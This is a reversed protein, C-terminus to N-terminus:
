AYRDLAIHPQYSQYNSNDPYGMMSYDGQQCDYEMCAARAYQEQTQLMQMLESSSVLQAAARAAARTTIYRRFVSPLDEFAFLWVVTCIQDGTFKYDHPDNNLNYLKGGRRVVRKSRDKQGDALDLRLMRNTLVIENNADPSFKRHRETNFVWGEDQVDRNVEVLIDYIFAVEPNTKDLENIPSQGIAGLISNVASLETVNDTTTSAM